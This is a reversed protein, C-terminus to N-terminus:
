LFSSGWSFDAPETSATLSLSITSTATSCFCICTLAVVGTFSGLNLSSFCYMVVSLSLYLLFIGSSFSSTGWISFSSAEFFLFNVSSSFSSDSKFVCADISSMTILGPRKFSIINLAASSTLTSIIPLDSGYTFILNLSWSYLDLFTLFVRWGSHFKEALRV